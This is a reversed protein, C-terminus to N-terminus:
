DPIPRSSEKDNLANWQDKSYQWNKKVDQQNNNRATIRNDVQKHKNFQQM